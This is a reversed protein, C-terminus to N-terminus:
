GLQRSLSVYKDKSGFTRNGVSVKGSDLKENDVLKVLNIGHGVALGPRHSQILCKVLESLKATLKIKKPWIDLTDRIPYLSREPTVEVRRPERRDHRLVYPYRSIVILNLAKHAKTSVKM